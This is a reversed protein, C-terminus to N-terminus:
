DVSNQCLNDVHVKRLRQDFQSGAGGSKGKRVMSLSPISDRLAVMKSNLNLRYRKETMNHASARSVGRRQRRRGPSQINIQSSSKSVSELFPRKQPKKQSQDSLCSSSSLQSKVKKPLTEATFPAMDTYPRPQAQLQGQPIDVSISDSSELLSGDLAISDHDFPFLADNNPLTDLSSLTGYEVEPKNSAAPKVTPEDYTSILTPLTRPLTSSSRRYLALPPCLHSVSNDFNSERPM